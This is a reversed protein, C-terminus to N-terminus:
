EAPATKGEFKLAVPHQVEEPEYQGAGVVADAFRMGRNEARRCGPEAKGRMVDQEDTVGELRVYRTRQTRPHRSYPVTRISLRVRGYCRVRNEAM